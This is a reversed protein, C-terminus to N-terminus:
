RRRLSRLARKCSKSKANCSRRSRRSTRSANRLHRSCHTKQTRRAGRWKVQLDGEKKKLVTELDMKVRQLEDIKDQSMKLDAEVKKKAQFCHVKM